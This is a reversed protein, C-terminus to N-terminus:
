PKLATVYITEHRRSELDMEPDFPRLKIDVFGVEMLRMSLNAEDFLYKHHGNMYVFWNVEDIPCGFYVPDVGTKDVDHLIKQGQAYAKLYRGGDPVAADFRGGPKLVRYCEKLLDCLPHPFTFHELLHSSYIADVCNDPLPLPRRLDLQIDEPYHLDASVWGPLHRGGAGLEIKLPHSVNVISAPQFCTRIHLKYYHLEKRLTDIEAQFEEPALRRLIGLSKQALFVFLTKSNMM